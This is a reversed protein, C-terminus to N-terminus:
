EERMWNNMVMLLDNSNVIGDGNLDGELGGQSPEETNMSTDTMSYTEVASWGALWNYYPSFGGRYQAPTYFGDSPAKAISLVADNAACPNIFTVPLMQKGGKTVVPGRNLTQIPSTGVAPTVNNNTADRVGRADAETYASAHGNNYFVSDKIEALKGSTQATYMVAPDNFAGATYTGANVM